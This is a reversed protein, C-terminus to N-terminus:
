LLYCTIRFSQEVHGPYILTVPTKSPVGSTIEENRHSDIKVTGV